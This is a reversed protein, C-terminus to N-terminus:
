RMLEHADEQRGIGLNGGINPLHSLINKPAFPHMSDVAREIHCQLECLFCWSERRISGSINLHSFNNLM